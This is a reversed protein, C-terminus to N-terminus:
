HCTPTLITDNVTAHLPLTQSGLLAGLFPMTLTFNPYDVDVQITNGLCPQTIITINVQIESPPDGVLEGLNDWVRVRLGSPDTPLISGYAAGEQAADRLALWTFFGRGFDVVGALLVMLLTITLALEVLSQGRENRKSKMIKDMNM